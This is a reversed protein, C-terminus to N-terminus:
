RGGSYGPLAKPMKQESWEQIDNDREVVFSVTKHPRSEFNEVVKMQSIKGSTAVRLSMTMPKEIWEDQPGKSRCTSSEKPAAVHMRDRQFWLSKEVDGPCMSADRVVLWTHRTNKAQKLVAEHLAENRPTWGESHWFYVSFVHFSGRVNM